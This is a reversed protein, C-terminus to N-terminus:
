RLSRFTVYFTIFTDLRVFNNTNAMSNQQLMIHFGRQGVSTETTRIFPSKFIRSATGGGFVQDMVKPRYFVSFPRNLNYTRVRNGQELFTNLTGPSYTGTPATASEPDIVVHAQASPYNIASNLTTNASVSIDDYAPRFTVKIANIKYEDFMQVWSSIDPLENISPAYYRWFGDTSVTTFQWNGQYLTRSTTLTQGRFRRPRPVRGVARRLRRRYRRPRRTRTRRAVM